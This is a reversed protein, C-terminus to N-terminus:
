LPGILKEIRALLRGGSAFTHGPPTGIEEAIARQLIIDERQDPNEGAGQDGETM